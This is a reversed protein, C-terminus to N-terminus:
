PALSGMLANLKISTNGCKSVGLTDDVMGRVGIPIAQDGKCFYLSIKKGFWKQEVPGDNIHVEPKVLCIGLHGSNACKRM